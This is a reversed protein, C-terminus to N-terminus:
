KKLFKTVETWAVEAVAKNYLMKGLRTNLETTFDSYDFCHHANDYIRVTLGDRNSLRDFVSECSDIPAVNDIKGMLVLVPIDSDWPRAAVCYPYYVVAADVQVPERNDTRSM